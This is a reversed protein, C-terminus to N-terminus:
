KFISMIFMAESVNPTDVPSRHVPTSVIQQKSKLVLSLGVKKISPDKPKLKSKFIEDVIEADTQQSIPKSRKGKLYKSDYISAFLPGDGRELMETDQIMPEKLRMAEYEEVSSAGCFQNPNM